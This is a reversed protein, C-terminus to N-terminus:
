RTYIVHGDQDHTIGLARATADGVDELSSGLLQAVPLDDASLREALAEVSLGAIQPGTAADERPRPPPPAERELTPSPLEVHLRERTLIAREAELRNVHVRLWEITSTHGAEQRELQVIRERAEALMRFLHEYHSRRIWM